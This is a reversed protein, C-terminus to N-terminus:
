ICIVVNGGAWDQSCVQVCVICLICAGFVEGLAIYWILAYRCVATTNILWSLLCVVWSCVKYMVFVTYQMPHSYM